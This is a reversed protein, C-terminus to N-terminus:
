PQLAPFNEVFGHWQIKGDKVLVNLDIDIGEFYPEITVREEGYRNIYKDLDKQNKCIRILSKGRGNKEKVIIPFDDEIVKEYQLSPM